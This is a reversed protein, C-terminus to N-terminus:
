AAAESPIPTEFMAACDDVTVKGDSLERIQIAQDLTIRTKGRLWQSVLGQSLPPTFKAAFAAQSTGSAKLYEDLRM